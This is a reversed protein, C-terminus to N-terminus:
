SSFPGYINGLFDQPTLLIRFPSAKVVDFNISKEVFHIFTREFVEDDKLVSIVASAYNRDGSSYLIYAYDELVRKLQTRVKEMGEKKVLERLYERRKEEKLYLPLIITSEGIQNYENRDKEMGKWKVFLDRFIPHTLLRELPIEEKRDGCLHYIESPENPGGSFRISGFHKRLFEVTEEFTGSKKQAESILFLVYQPSVESIFTGAREAEAKKNKFWSLYEDKNAEGIKLDKLGEDLNMIGQAVFILNKRQEFLIIGIRDLNRDYNSIYGFAFNQKSTKSLVASGKEKKEEIKLGSTKLYFMLRRITKLLEKDEEKEYLESLLNATDQTRKNRLSELIYLREEKSSRLYRQVLEDNM